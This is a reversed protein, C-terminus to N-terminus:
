APNFGEAFAVFARLSEPPHTVDTARALAMIADAEQPDFYGADRYTTMRILLGDADLEPHFQTAYAAPGIRLAQVPAGPSTALVVADAPPTSVAEKHGVIASFVQPLGGFVPDTRGAATLTVPVAAIQEGYEHDVIGGKHRAILGLGYCAGLLPIREALAVDVVRNLDEEARQQQSSKATDTVNFPSGGIIIGAYDRPDGTFPERDVAHRQLDTGLGTFRAFAAYEDDAAVPEPRVGLLLFPKM